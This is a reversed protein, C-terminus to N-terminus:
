TAFEVKLGFIGVNRRDTIFAAARRRRRPIARKQGFPCACSRSLFASVGLTAPDPARVSRLGSVGITLKGVEYAYMGLIALSWKTDFGGTGPRPCSPRSDASKTSSTQSSYAEAKIIELQRV